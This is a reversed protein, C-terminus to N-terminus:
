ITGIDTYYVSYGYIVPQYLASSERFRLRFTCGESNNNTQSNPNFVLAKPQSTGADWNGTDWILADWLSSVGTSNASVTAISTSANADGVRFDAWYDMTMTPQGTDKVWLIVKAIRKRRDPTERGMWPTFYSLPIASSSVDAVGAFASYMYGFSDGLYILENTAASGTTYAVGGKVPFPLADPSFIGQFAQGLLNSQAQETTLRMDLKLVYQQAGYLASSLYWQIQNRQQSFLGFGQSLNQITIDGNSRFKDEISRSMYRPKGAGAWSFVGRYNVWTLFGSATVLLRQSPCGCSDIYALQFDTYDTGTLVWIETDKFICLAEDVTSGAVGSVLSVVGIATIPGGSPVEFYNVTPWSEPKNTDSIYVSSGSATVLRRKWLAVSKYTGSPLPTNDLVVSNTRPVTVSSAYGTFATSGTDEFTAPIGASIDLTTVLTGATFGSVGALSSRYIYLKTYKTTDSGTIGSLTLVAKNKTATVTVSQDLGANGVAGTSAKYYTVAYTYSGIPLTGASGASGDAISIAGTAAEVGNMTVKTASYVGALNTLGGGAAWLVHSASSNFMTFPVTTTSAAGLIDTPATSSDLSLNTFTTPTAFTQLKRGAARIVTRSTAASSDYVGMGLLNTETNAVSNLRAHGGRKTVAGLQTYDWNYGDSAETEKVLFPSDASNLGGTLNFYDECRFQGEKRESM